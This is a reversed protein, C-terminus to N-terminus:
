LMVALSYVLSKNKTRVHVPRTIDIYNGGSTKEGGACSGNDYEDNREGYIALPRRRYGKDYEDIIRESANALSALAVCYFMM